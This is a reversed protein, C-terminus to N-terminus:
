VKEQNFTLRKGEKQIHDLDSYVQEEDELSTQETTKHALYDPHSQCVQSAVVTSLWISVYHCKAVCLFKESIKLCTM